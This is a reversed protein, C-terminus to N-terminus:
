PAVTRLDLVSRGSLPVSLDVTWVGSWLKALVAPRCNEGAAAVVEEIAMGARAVSEVAALAAPCILEIRRAAGITRVNTLVIPNEGSWVEYTWGRTACVQATWAFVRMVEDRKAFEAPKVDIVTFGGDADKLLLDPVHKRTTAGDPGSLWMPQAAIRRVEPAFDAMWLRDLELRSEYAIHGSNTASWFFGAYHPRHHHSRVRRVPRGRVVQHPDVAAVTTAVASGNDRVYRVEVADTWTM